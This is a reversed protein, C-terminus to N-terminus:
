LLFEAFVTNGYKMGRGTLRVYDGDTELLGKQLLEQTVSAYVSAFSCGFKTQFAQRDMGRVTRLALFAFEEMAIARTPPEEETAPSVGAQVAEIYADIATRNETRRGQWYGHAAAGLGLYPVDQWYGLNHRSAFGPQAFNSIEYRAYGYQPLAETMYDYMQETLEESPLSLTGMAQQRAFATGEELQLGYISIHQVSLAAAQAVSAQLDSMTQGPLGYMLDVSINSFGAARAAEVAEVAQRGTHIRGIRRLLADQFSQVGFSLRNVGLARLRALQGDSVTGPNAEMTFEAADAVPLHTKLAELIQELQALPLATPTGGGVYVTAAGEAPWIFPGGTAKDAAKVGSKERLLTGQVAIERCLADTYAAM